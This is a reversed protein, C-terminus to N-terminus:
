TRPKWQVRNGAERWASVLDGAHSIPLEDRIEYCEYGYSFSWEHFDDRESTAVFSTWNGKINKWGDHDPSVRALGLIVHHETAHRFQAGLLASAGAWGSRDIKERAANVDANEIDDWRWLFPKVEVLLPREFGLIFDPIYGKLDIPEYEWSWGLLDFFAAWRAELRSRFNVGGYTTPIAHM